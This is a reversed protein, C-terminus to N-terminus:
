QFYDRTQKRLLYVLVLIVIPIGVIARRETGAIVNVIDGALNLLLMVVAFWYGWRRGRWLGIATSLCAVFVTAMLVVAWVGIRGFAERAHPNTRWIPELVSGPFTLSVAALLSAVTGIVFLLILATIGFPRTQHRAM